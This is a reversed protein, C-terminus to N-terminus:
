LSLIRYPWLLIQGGSPIDILGVGAITNERNNYYNGVILLLAQKITKPVSARYDYVPSYDILHRRRIGPLM